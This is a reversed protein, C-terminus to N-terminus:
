QELSAAVRTRQGSTVSVSTSWSRYGALEIRVTHAGTAITPLLVPTVGVPAGDVFVQAGTPRSDIQLGTTAPAPLPAQVAASAGDLSAEFSQSPRDETLTATQHWQPYGVMTVVIVHAGLTLGRVAVPTEGHPVGDVLVSAGAPTSRVLIRGSTALAEAQTETPAPTASRGASPRPAPQRSVRTQAAEADREAARASSPTAAPGPRSSSPSSPRSSPEEQIVPPVASVATGAGASAAAGPTAASTGPSAPPAPTPLPAPSAAPAGPETVTLPQQDDLREAPQTATGTAPASGENRRGGFVWLAVAIVVVVAAVAAFAAVRWGSGTTPKNLSDGFVTVDAASRPEAPHLVLPAPVRETFPEEYPTEAHLPADFAHPRPSDFLEPAPREVTEPSPPRSVVTAAPTDELLPPAAASIARDEPPARRVTPSEPDVREPGPEAVEAGEGGFSLSLRGVDIGGARSAPAPRAHAQAAQLSAAFVLATDPWTAPEGALVPELAAVLREYDVAPVGRLPALADRVSGGAFRYGVLLEFTMAALAYIDDATTPENVSVGADRMAQMLGFGSVGTSQPAFIIDRPSLAGHHVGGAAAFDISAALHTVRVIVDALPRPGHARLFEDISIGPLYSHVLYPVGQELGCAIPTAISPHDLPRTCLLELAEILRRQQDATLREDFTRIVVVQDSEPDVGLHVPGFRGDGLAATVLFRGFTPVPEDFLSGTGTLTPAGEAANCIHCPSAPSDISRLM